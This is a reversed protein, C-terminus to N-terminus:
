GGPERGLEVQEQVDGPLPCVAVVAQLGDEGQQIVSVRQVEFRSLAQTQFAIVRFDGAVATVQDQAGGLDQLVVGLRAVARADTQLFAEGHPAAYASAGGISGGGQQAKVLQPVQPQRQVGEGFKAEVQAGIHGDEDAAAAGPGLAHSLLNRRNGQRIGM